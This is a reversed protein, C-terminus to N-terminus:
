KHLLNVVQDVIVQVIILTQIEVFEVITDNILYVSVVVSKASKLVDEVGFKGFEM